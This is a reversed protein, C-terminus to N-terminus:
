YIFVYIGVVSDYCFALSMKWTKKQFFAINQCLFVRLFLFRKSSLKKSKKFHGQDIKKGKGAM